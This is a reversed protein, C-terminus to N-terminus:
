ASGKAGGAWDIRAPQKLEVEGIALEDRARADDGECWRQARHAGKHQSPARPAAVARALRNPPVHRAELAEIELQEGTYGVDADLM